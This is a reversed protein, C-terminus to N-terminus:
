AHEFRLLKRMPVISICLFFIITIKLGKADKQFSFSYFLIGGLMQPLWLSFVQAIALM